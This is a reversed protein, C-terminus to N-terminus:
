SSPARASCRAPRASPAPRSRCTSTSRSSGRRRRAAPSSRRSSRQRRPHRRRLEPAYILDRFTTVGFEVEYRRAAQRPRVGRVHAHGAVDRRRARRVGDGGNVCSGRCTPCRRSTTSSRHAAPVPGQRGPLVAAQPAAHRPQGRPERDAGDGRGRHLRRRGLAPRHRRQLRHRPHEQRHLGDAYAENLATRWASRPSPWRAASTSSPRRAARDAYCAILCARSSSTRIASWSSATRTPARSARTATSWSTAPGCARRASAGSSAPPSAPAAAASCRERGQGRRHGRGAHTPSRPACARTAAPPWTASSPTRTTTADFRAPSSRRARRHDDHRRRRRSRRRSRRSRPRAHDLGARDDDDPAAGARRGPRRPHAPPGRALTGHPPIEDDLRGARLDDVLQDFDDNTVRYRYRYNVQLCPAETCAAICEVDSSPSCHRRRHHRRGQHRAHEEAHSSCSTPASAAPLLHEHLHQRPVHRGARAQVDRLLTCTGLVEAPTVGVLEAIHEM